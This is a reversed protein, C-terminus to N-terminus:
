GTADSFRVLVPTPKKQLHPASSLSAAQKSPTFTGSVMIGKAHNARYGAYPGHVLTTMTDVLKETVPKSSEAVDEAYAQSALSLAVATLLAKVAHTNNYTPSKQM